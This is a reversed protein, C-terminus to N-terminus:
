TTKERVARAAECWAKQEAWTLWHWPAPHQEGTTEQFAAYAVHGFRLYETQVVRGTLDNM